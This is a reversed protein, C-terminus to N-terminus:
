RRMIHVLATCGGVEYHPCNRCRLATCGGVEYHPCKRCHLVGVWRMTHVSEAARYVWGGVWRMIDREAARYM